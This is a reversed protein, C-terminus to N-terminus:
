NKINELDYRSSVQINNEIKKSINKLSEEARSMEDQQKQTAIHLKTTSEFIKESSKFQENQSQKISESSNKLGSSRHNIEKTLSATKEALKSIEDAVVAFGRGADGARAAEIAANLSLLNVQDSVDDITKVHEIISNIGEELHKMEDNVIISNEKNKKAEDATIGVTQITEQYEAISDLIIPNVSEINAMIENNRKIEDEIILMNELEQSKIETENYMNIVLTSIKGKEDPIPTITLDLYTEGKGVNIDIKKRIKIKETMAKHISDRIEPTPIIEDVTKNIINEPLLEMYTYFSKNVSLILGSSDINIIGAAQADLVIEIEKERQRTNKEAEISKERSDAMDMMISMDKHNQENSKSRHYIDRKIILSNRRDIVYALIIGLYILLQFRLAPFSFKSVSFILLTLFSTGIFSINSKFFQIFLDNNTIDKINKGTNRQVSNYLIDMVSIKRYTITFRMRDSNVTVHEDYGDFQIKSNKKFYTVPKGDEADRLIDDTKTDKFIGDKDMYYARGNIEEFQDPALPYEKIVCFSGSSGRKNDLVGMCSGQALIVTYYDVIGM